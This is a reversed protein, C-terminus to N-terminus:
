VDASARALIRGVPVRRPVVCALKCGIHHGLRLRNGLLQPDDEAMSNLFSNLARFRDTRM